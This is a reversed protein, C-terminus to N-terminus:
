HWYVYSCPKENERAKKTFPPLLAQTPIGECPVVTKIYDCFLVLKTLDSREFLNRLFARACLPFFTFSPHFFCNFLRFYWCFPPEELIHTCYRRRQFPWAVFQVGTEAVCTDAMIGFNQILFSYTRPYSPSMSSAWRTREHFSLLANPRAGCRWGSLQTCLPKTCSM